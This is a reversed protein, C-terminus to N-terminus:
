KKLSSFIEESLLKYRNYRDGDTKDKIMVQREKIHQLEIEDSKIVSTLQQLKINTKFRSSLQDGVLPNLLIYFSLLLKLFENVTALPDDDKYYHEKKYKSIFILFEHLNLCPEDVIKQKRNIINDRYHFTMLFKMAKKTLSYQKQTIGKIEIEGNERFFKDKNEKDADRMLTTAIIRYDKRFDNKLIKALEPKTQKGNLAIEKLIKIQTNVEKKDSYEKKIEEIEELQMKKM